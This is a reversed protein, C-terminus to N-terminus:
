LIVSSPLPCALTSHRLLRPHLVASLGMIGVHKFYLVRIQAIISFSKWILQFIEMYISKLPSETSSKQVTTPSTIHFYKRM